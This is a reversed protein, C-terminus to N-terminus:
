KKSIIKNKKFIQYLLFSTIIVSILTYSSVLLSRAAFFIWAFLSSSIIKTYLSKDANRLIWNDIMRLLIGFIFLIFLSIHFGFDMYIEGGIGSATSYITDDYENTYNRILWYDLMVPKNPWFIRPVYFIFIYGISKGYTVHNNNLYDTIMASNRIIGESSGLEVLDLTFIQDSKRDNSQSIDSHNHSSLLGEYRNTVIYKSSIVLFIILSVGLLITRLNTTKLYRIFLVSFAYLLLYRTGLSIFIILLPLSFAFSYLLTSKPKTFDFYYGWTGILSIALGSNLLDLVGFNVVSARGHILSSSINNLNIIFLLITLIFVILFMTYKKELYSGNDVSITFDINSFNISRSISHGMVLCLSGLVVYRFGINVNDIGWTLYLNESELLSEPFVTYAFAILFTFLLSIGRFAMFINVILIIYVWFLILSSYYINPFVFVILIIAVIIIFRYSLNLNM